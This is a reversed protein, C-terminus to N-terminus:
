DKPDLGKFGKYEPLGRKGIELMVRRYVPDDKPDYERWDFAGPGMKDARTKPGVREVPAPGVAKHKERTRDEPPPPPITYVPRAQYRVGKARHEPRSEPRWWAREQQREWLWAYFVFPDWGLAGAITLGIGFSPMSEGTLTKSVARIPIGTKRSLERASKLGADGLILGLRTRQISAYQIQRATADQPLGVRTLRPRIRHAPTARDPPVNHRRPGPVFRLVEGDPGRRVKM